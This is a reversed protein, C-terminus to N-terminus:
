FINVINNYMFSSFPLLWGRHKVYEVIMWSTRNVVSFLYGLDIYLKTAVLFFVDRLVFVLCLIYVAIIGETYYHLTCYLNIRECPLGSNDRWVYLNSNAAEVVPKMNGM